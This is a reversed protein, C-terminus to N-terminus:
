FNQVNDVLNLNALARDFSSSLAPKFMEFRCFAIISPLIKFCIIPCSSLLLSTVNLTASRRFNLASPEEFVADRDLGAFASSAFAASVGDRRGRFATLGDVAAHAPAPFWAASSGIRVRIVLFIKRTRAIRGAKHIKERRQCCVRRGARPGHRM